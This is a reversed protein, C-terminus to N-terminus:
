AFDVKMKWGRKIMFGDLAERAARAQDPTDYRVNATKSKTTPNPQSVATTAFGSYQQFLVGLVDDTVEVPLNQCFLVASPPRQDPVASFAQNSGGGAEDEDDEDMDMDDADADDRGRKRERENGGEGDEDMRSSGADGRSRKRQENEAQSVTVKSMGNNMKAFATASAGVASFAPSVFSPDVMRLTAHSQTRAYEIHLQKDYFREGDLGRMASTASALDRFVIFAQGKMKLGRQAVIDLINGYSSFLAYLQTRLEEKKVKENLNKLYLTPNPTSSSM